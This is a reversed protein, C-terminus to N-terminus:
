MKESFESRHQWFYNWSCVINKNCDDYIKFVHAYRLTEQLAAPFVAAIFVFVYVSSLWFRGRLMLNRLAYAVVPLVFWSCIFVTRSIFLPWALYSLSSPLVSILYLKVDNDITRWNRIIFYLGILFVPLLLNFTSVNIGIWKTFNYNTAAYIEWNDRFWQLSDYGVDYSRIKNIVITAFPLVSFLALVVGKNILKRKSWLVLIGFFVAAMAGSEKTLLGFATSASALAVWAWGSNKFWRWGAFLTLVFWFYGGMDQVQTLAYRVMTYGTMVFLATLFGIIEDKFVDKILFYTLFILGVYFFINISILASAPSLFFLAKGAVLPYFPNLYRGPYIDSREGRFFEISYIFGETDNNEHFGFFKWFLLLSIVVLLGIVAPFFWKSKVKARFDM